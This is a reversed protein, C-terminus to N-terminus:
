RGIEMTKSNARVCLLWIDQFRGGFVYIHCWIGPRKESYLIKVSKPVSKLAKVSRLDSKPSELVERILNRAKLTVGCNDSCMESLRSMPQDVRRGEDGFKLVCKLSTIGFVTRPCNIVVKYETIRRLADRKLLRAELIVLTFVQLPPKHIEVERCSQLIPWHVHENHKKNEINM